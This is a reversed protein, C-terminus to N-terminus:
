TGLQDHHAPAPWSARSRAKFGVKDAESGASSTDFNGQHDNLRTSHPRSKQVAGPWRGAFLRQTVVTTWKAAIQQSGSVRLCRTACAKSNQINAAASPQGRLLQAARRSNQGGEGRRMNADQMAEGSASSTGASGRDRHRDQHRGTPSIITWCASKKLTHAVAHLVACGRRQRRAANDPFATARAPPM